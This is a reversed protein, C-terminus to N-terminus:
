GGGPWSRGAQRRSRRARPTGRRVVAPDALKDVLTGQRTRALDPPPAGAITPADCELAAEGPRLWGASVSRDGDAHIILHDLRSTTPNLVMGVLPLRKGGSHLIASGLGREGRM